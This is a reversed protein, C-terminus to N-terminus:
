ISVTLYINYAYIIETESYSFSGIEIRWNLEEKSIKEGEGGLIWSSWGCFWDVVLGCTFSNYFIEGFIHTYLFSLFPFILSQIHYTCVCVHRATSTRM